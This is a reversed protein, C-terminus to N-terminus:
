TTVARIKDFAEKHATLADALTKYRKFFILKGNKQVRAVWRNRSKDFYIGRVVIM